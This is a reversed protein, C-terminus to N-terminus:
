KGFRAKYWLIIITEYEEDSKTTYTKWSIAKQAVYIHVYM